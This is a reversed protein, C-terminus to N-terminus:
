LSEQPSHRARKNSPEEDSLNELWRYVAMNGFSRADEARSAYTERDGVGPIEMLAPLIMLNRDFKIAMDVVTPLLTPDARGLLDRLLPSSILM